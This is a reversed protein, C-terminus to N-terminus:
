ELVEEISRVQWMWYGAVLERSETFPGDTVSQGSPGWRVRLGEASPTLADSALLVGAAALEEEFANMEGMGESGHPQGEREPTSKALIMVRM